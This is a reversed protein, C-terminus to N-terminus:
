AFGPMLHQDPDAAIMEEARAPVAFGLPTPVLDEAGRGRGATGNLAKWLHRAVEMGALKIRPTIVTLGATYVEDYWGCGYGLLQVFSNTTDVVYASAPLAAGYEPTISVVDVLPHKRQKLYGGHAYLRETFTTVELPGSLRWKVWETASSLALLLEEDRPNAVTTSQRLWDKFDDLTAVLPGIDPEEGAPIPM